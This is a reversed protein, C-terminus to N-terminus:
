PLHGFVAVVTCVFTARLGGFPSRPRYSTNVRVVTSRERTVIVSQFYNVRIGSSWLSIESEGAQSKVTARGLLIKQKVSQLMRQHCVIPTMQRGM